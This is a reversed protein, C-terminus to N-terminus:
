APGPNRCVQTPVHGVIHRYVTQGHRCPCTHLVYMYPPCLTLKLEFRHKPMPAPVHRLCAHTKAHTRSTHKPVRKSIHTREFRKGFVIIDFELKGTCICTHTHARTRAHTRAHTRVSTARSLKCYHARTGTRSLNTYLHAVDQYRSQTHCSIKCANLTTHLCADM